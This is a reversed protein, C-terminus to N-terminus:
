KWLVPKIDIGYKRAFDWDREDHAPVFMVAGTAYDPLVYDAFWVPVQEGTLPHIVIVGSNFGTKEKETHQRDIATKLATVKRYDSLEQKKTDSMLSDIIEIEPALVIATVGYVTDPRTTFVTIKVSNSGSVEEQYPPRPTTFEIEAGESRGIWNTQHIKTEEPRNCDSYDLLQDAYDTIKIYRQPQKKQTIESECRECKGDVVQDNALVTQCGPCWNVFGDKRYVLNHQYLKSFIWQTWKYYEPSSTVLMRDTDFSM